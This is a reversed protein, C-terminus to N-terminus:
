HPNQLFQEFELLAQSVGIQQALQMFQPLIQIVDFDPFILSTKSEIYQNAQLLYITLKDGIYIWLEPIGLATYAEIETKSTVDIELALDPPPDITLDLRKKGIVAQSNQIYFCDEPEIGVKMSQQKFTTSGLPEWARKQIKLLTTILDALLIKSREHEPLPAIIELIGKAYAIRSSRQHGLQTLIDEFSQWTVPQLTVKQGPALPLSIVSTLM